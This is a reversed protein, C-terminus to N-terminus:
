GMCEPSEGAVRETSVDYLLPVHSLSARAVWPGQVDALQVGGPTAKVSDNWKRAADLKSLFRSRKADTRM